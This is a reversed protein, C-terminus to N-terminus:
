TLKEREREIEREREKERERGGRERGRNGNSGWFLEKWRIAKLYIQLAKHTEIQLKYSPWNVYQARM